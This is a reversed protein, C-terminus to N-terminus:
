FTYQTPDKDKWVVVFSVCNVFSFLPQHQIHNSTGLVVKQVNIMVSIVSFRFARALRTLWMIGPTTSTLHSTWYTQRLGSSPIIVTQVEHQIISPCNCTATWVQRGFLKGRLVSQQALALSTILQQSSKVWSQHIHSGLQRCTVQM